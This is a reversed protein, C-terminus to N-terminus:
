LDVLPLRVVQGSEGSMVAAEAIEVARLGDDGPIPVPRDYAVAEVFERVERKVGPEYHASMQQLDPELVTGDAMRVHLYGTSRNFYVDAGTCMLKGDYVGEIACHGSFFQVPKGGEYRVLLQATDYYDVDNLFFQGTVAWVAEARGFVQSMFDIEHVHVEFLSGGSEAMTHRWAEDYAGGTWGGAVRTIQGAFPEGWAGSRVQEIIWVFPPSYRLVHGVMLKAGAERAAEIMALADTAHLAMPKETFVHKGARAAAIANPAHLHNPTAIIVADIDERALAADLDTSAECGFQAAVEQAAEARVDVALALQGEPIHPLASVLSRGMRGCGILALRVQPM